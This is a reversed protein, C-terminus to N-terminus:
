PLYGNHLAFIAPYLAIGYLFYVVVSLFIAWRHDSWVKMFTRFINRRAEWLLPLFVVSSLLISYRSFGLVLSVSYVLFTSVIVSIVSYLLLKIGAPLRNAFLETLCAGPLFFTFVFGWLLLITQLM